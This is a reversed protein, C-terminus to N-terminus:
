DCRGHAAAALVHRDDKDPLEYAHPEFGSVTAAPFSRRLDGIMRDVKAPDFGRKDVLASRTEALVEDSWRVQILSAGAFGCFLDRLQADVLVNADLLARPKPQWRM